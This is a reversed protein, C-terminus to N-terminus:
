IIIGGISTRDEIGSKFAYGARAKRNEDRMGCKLNRTDWMGDRGSKLGCEANRMGCGALRMNSGRQIPEPPLKNRVAELSAFLSFLLKTVASVDYASAFAEAFKEKKAM